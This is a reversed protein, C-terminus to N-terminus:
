IPTNLARRMYITPNGYVEGSLSEPNFHEIVPGPGMKSRWRGNPMQLSAHQFRGQIEYLAVKEYGIEAKSDDCQEYDLGAFVEKLSVIRNDYTAWPPWYCYPNPWWLETVDGAAYAICNYRESSQEVFEFGEESLNPFAEILMQAWRHMDM